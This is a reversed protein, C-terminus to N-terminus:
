HVLLRRLVLGFYYSVKLAFLQLANKHYYHTFIYVLSRYSDRYGRLKYGPRYLHNHQYTENTLIALSRNQQRFKLGVCTEGHYLFINEDFFDIAAFDDYRVCWYSSRVSDCLFYNDFIGRKKSKVHFLKKLGLNECICGTITPFNYFCQKLQGAEQMQASVLSIDGHNSLFNVSNLIVQKSVEVDSNIILVYDIGQGALARLGLNHGTAYGANNENYIIKVVQESALPGLLEKQEETSNNDVVVINTVIEYEVLIQVLKVVRETDNYNLIVAAIKM